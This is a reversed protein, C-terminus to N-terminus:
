LPDALLHRLGEKGFKEVIQLVEGQLNRKRIFKWQEGTIFALVVDIERVSQAIQEDTFDSNIGVAKKLGVSWLLQKKGYFNHSYEKFLELGKQKEKVLEQKQFENLQEDEDVINIRLMDFPSYVDKSRGSKTNAKVLEHEVNWQYETGLKTIYNRVEGADQITFAKQSPEGLGQRIVANKWLLFLQSEMEDFETKNRLFLITHSHPHWGNVGHTVELAKISGVISYKDIRKQYSKGSKFARLAESFNHLLDNLVDQKSHPVTQTLMVVSGGRSQWENLAHRVELARFAQIKAACVPCVWISGCVMLNSYYCKGSKESKRVEVEKKDGRINRYCISIRHKSTQLARRSVVQLQWKLTPDYTSFVEGTSHDVRLPPSAFKTINDLSGRM